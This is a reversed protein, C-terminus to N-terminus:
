LYFHAGVAINATNGTHRFSKENHPNKYNPGYGFKATMRLLETLTVEGYLHPVISFGLEYDNPEYEGNEGEKNWKFYSKSFFSLVEAGVRLRELAEYSAKASPALTWSGFGEIADTGALPIEVMLEGSLGFKSEERLDSNLGVGILLELNGTGIWANEAFDTSYGTPIVAGIRPEFLGVRKGLYVRANGTWIQDVNEASPHDKISWALPIAAFGKLGVFSVYSTVSFKNYYEGTRTADTPTVMWSGAALSLLDLSLKAQAQSSLPLLLICLTLSNWILTKLLIPAERRKDTMKAGRRTKERCKVWFRDSPM